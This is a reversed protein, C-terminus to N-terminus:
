SRRNRRRSEKALQRRRRALAAKKTKQGRKSRTRLKPHGGGSLAGAYHGRPVERYDPGAAALAAAVAILAAARARDQRVAVTRERDCRIGSM